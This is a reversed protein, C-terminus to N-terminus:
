LRRENLIVLKGSPVKHSFLEYCPNSLFEKMQVISRIKNKNRAYWEGADPNAVSRMNVIQYNIIKAIDFILNRMTISPTWDFCLLGSKWCNPHFIPRKFIVEPKINSYEAPLSIKFEFRNATEMERETTGTLGPVGRIIMQYKELDPTVSYDFMGASRAKLERVGKLDEKIRRIRQSSVCREKRFPTEGSGSKL